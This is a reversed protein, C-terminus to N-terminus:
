SWIVLHKCNRQDILVNKTELKKAKIKTNIEKFHMKSLRCDHLVYNELLIFQMLNALTM